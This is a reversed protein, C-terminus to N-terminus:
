RKRIRHVEKKRFTVHEDDIVIEDIAERKARLRWRVVDLLNRVEQPLSGFRDKLEDEFTDVESELKIENLRRYLGSKLEPPVYDDPFYADVKLIIKPEHEVVREGRLERIVEELLKLYLDYGIMNMYGHQEKGLINGAGRIELDKLALKFGAGLETHKLIAALRRRARSSMSRPVVLYCYAQVDGRGVRGRLQHLDAIGFMHANHIIITNVTPIDIGSGIINTSLLVPFRKHYFDLMIKELEKPKLRGHAVRIEVNPLWRKLIDHLVYITEIRNHVFYVQGDRSLEFEIARRILNTDWPIVQTIIPLRGPPPTELVSLARINHLAMYLTRPIPTASLSLVDVEKRLHKFREKQRVGFRHEEDIIVLGLDKFRVDDRLLRHTGIVIDITGDRLGALIERERSKTFRSLMEVRVPFRALREKFTNYHQEALITTPVLIAVQKYDMVAKFAARVALETKGFGVEGCVLRDMPRPMEMDHKIEEMVKLQDPTEEYPFSAELEMQWGTDPSFAHGKLMEREAYLQLLEQMFKYIGSKARKKRLEWLPSGLKSLTPKVVGPASYKQIMHMKEVPVYLRDGDRFRLLFADYRKGEVEINTIGDFQAIGYDIHVVYDGKHLCKMDDIPIGVNQYPHSPPRVRKKGFIDYYTFVALKLEHVIFGEEIPLSVMEIDPFLKRLKDIEDGVGSIFIRYPKLQALRNRFMSLDGVFATTAGFDYGEGILLRYTIPLRVNDLIVPIDINRIFEDITLTREGIDPLLQTSQIHNISRQTEPHFYRLSCITDDAFEVRIPYPAEPPFFDVISGRIAFELPEEVLTVREYNRIILFEILKEMRFPSGVKLTFMKDKLKSIDPFSLPTLGCIVICKEKALIARLSPEYSAELNYVKDKVLSKLEHFLTEAMPSLIFIPGKDKCYEALFLSKLGGVLGQVERKDFLSIFKPYSWLVELIPNM